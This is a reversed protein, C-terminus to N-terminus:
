KGSTLERLRKRAYAVLTAQATDGAALNLFRRYSSAAGPFNRTEEQSHALFFVARANGPDYQLAKMYAREAKPFRKQKYYVGAIQSYLMGLRETHAGAYSRHFAELARELSDMSAYALGANLYLVANEEEMSAARIYSAAASDFNKLEFYAQGLRAHYTANTTDFKAANRFCHVAHEPEGLKEMCYGRRAWCDANVSDRALIMGYLREADQYEKRKYYLSALLNLCPNYRLNLALSARLYQLASDPRGLNVLSAGLNYYSMYDRANLRVAKTFLEAASVFDRGDFCLTGLNFLAPLFTSDQALILRYQVRAEAAAGYASLSKALSFRYPIEGASSDVAMRLYRIANQPDNLAAFSSGLYYNAKPSLTTGGSPQLLDIVHAYAGNYYSVVAAQLLSDARPLSDAPRPQAFLMEAAVLSAALLSGPFNM